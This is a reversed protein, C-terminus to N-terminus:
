FDLGRISSLFKNLKNTVEEIQAAEISNGFKDYRKACDTKPCLNYGIVADILNHPEVVIRKYILLENCSKCKM